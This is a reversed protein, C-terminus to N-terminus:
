AMDANIIILRVATTARTTANGPQYNTFTAAVM